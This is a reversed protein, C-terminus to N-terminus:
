FLAALKELFDLDTVLTAVIFIALGYTFANNAAFALALVLASGILKVISARNKEYYSFFLMWVLGTVGLIQALAASAEKIDTLLEIGSWLISAVRLDLFACIFSHVVGAVM